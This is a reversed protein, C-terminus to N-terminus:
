GETCYCSVVACVALLRLATYNQLHHPHTEQGVLSAVDEAEEVVVVEQQVAQPRMRVSALHLVSPIQCLSRMREAPTRVLGM